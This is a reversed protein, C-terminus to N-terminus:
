GHRVRPDMVSYLVDVLLNVAVYFFAILAVASQLAVYQKNSIADTIISGVGNLQFLIELVVAGGILAGINLGAVTLLTLSSPRLAHGWLIRRAPMGKAKAMLIYDEQLTQIMDSRLLRMYGAIQAIALSIAPIALSKFHLALDESPSVYGSTPVWRWQVGVWYVLVLGLCFDPISIAGFATANITKDIWTGAKYSAFVGLPIAIVLTIIMAYFMLFLNVPLAPKLTDWVPRSGTVSYYNGFDGTAFDGLWQVYRVPFSQDLGLEERIVERQEESSFGAVAAVPDGPTLEILFATFLSVFFVIVVLLLLRRLIARM